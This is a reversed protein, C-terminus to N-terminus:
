DTLRSVVPQVTRPEFLSIENKWVLGSQSGRGGVKGLPLTGPLTTSWVDWRVGLYFHTSGYRYEGVTVEM